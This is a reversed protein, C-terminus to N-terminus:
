SAVKRLTYETEYYIDFIVDQDGGYYRDGGYGSVCKITRGIGDNDFVFWDRAILPSGEWIEHSFTIRNPDVSWWGKNGHAGYTSYSIDEGGCRHITEYTGAAKQSVKAPNREFVESCGIHTRDLESEFPTNERGSISWVHYKRKVVSQIVWKGEIALAAWSNYADLNDTGPVHSIRAINTGVPYVVSGGMLRVSRYDVPVNNIYLFTQEENGIEVTEHVVTLTKGAATQLTQAQLLEEAGYKGQVVHWQLDAVPLSESDTRIISDPLAFVTYNGVLPSISALATAFLSYNSDEGLEAAVNALSVENEWQAVLTIDGKVPTQFDYADATGNAHWFLFIHGKKSPNAPAIATEGAKVTQLPVATGGDSDFTVTYVPDDEGCSIAGLMAIGIFAIFCLRKYM